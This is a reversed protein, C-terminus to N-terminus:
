YFCVDEFCESFWEAYSFFCVDVVGECGCVFLDCYFEVTEASCAEFLCFSFSSVDGGVFVCWVPM